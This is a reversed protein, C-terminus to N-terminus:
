GNIVVHPYERIARFGLVCGRSGSYQRQNFVISFLFPREKEAGAAATRFEGQVQHARM